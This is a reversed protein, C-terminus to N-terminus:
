RVYSDLLLQERAAPAVLVVLRQLHGVGRAAGLLELRQQVQVAEGRVAGLRQGVEPSAYNFGKVCGGWGKAMGREQNCAPRGSTLGGEWAEKLGIDEVQALVRNLEGRTYRLSLTPPPMRNSSM